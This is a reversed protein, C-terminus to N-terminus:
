QKQGLKKHEMSCYTHDDDKVAMHEPVQTDCYDCRVLRVNRDSPNSDKKNIALMILRYIIWIILAIAIIRILNM